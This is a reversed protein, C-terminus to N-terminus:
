AILEAISYDPQALLVGDRNFVKLNIHTVGTQNFRPIDVLTNHDNVVENWGTVPHYTEEITVKDASPYCERIKEIAYKHQISEQTRIVFIMNMTIGKM